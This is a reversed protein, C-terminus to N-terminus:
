KIVTLSKLDIKVIQKKDYVYVVNSSYLEVKASNLFSTNEKTKFRSCILRKVDILLYYYKFLIERKPGSKGFLIIFHCPSLDISYCYYSDCLYLSALTAGSSLDILDFVNTRLTFTFKFCHIHSLHHPELNSLSFNEIRVIQNYCGRERKLYLQNNFRFLNEYANTSEISVKANQKVFPLFPLIKVSHLDVIGLNYLLVNHLDTIDFVLIKKLFWNHDTINAKIFIRHREDEFFDSPLSFCSLDTRQCNAWKGFWTLYKTITQPYESRLGLTIHTEDIKVWYGIGLSVCQYYDPNEDIRNDSRIQKIANYSQVWTPLFLKNRYRTILENWLQDVLRARLLASNKLYYFIPLLVDINM